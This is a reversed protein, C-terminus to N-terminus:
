MAGTMLCMKMKHKPTKVMIHISFTLHLYKLIAVGNMSIRENKSSMQTTIAPCAVFPADLHILRTPMCNWGDSSALPATTRATAWIRLAMCVSWPASLRAKLNMKDTHLMKTKKMPISFRDVAMSSQIVMRHMIIIPRTGM